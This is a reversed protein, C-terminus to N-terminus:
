SQFVTHPVGKLHELTTTTAIYPNLKSSKVTGVDVSDRKVQRCGPYWGCLYSVPIFERQCGCM